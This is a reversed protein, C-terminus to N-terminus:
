REGLRRIAERANDAVGEHAAAQRYWHIATNRDATVGRGEEYMTGLAFMSLGDGREAGRTLWLLAASLDQELGPGGSLHMLGLGTAAQGAQGRGGRGYVIEYYHAARAYDPEVGYGWYYANALGLFGLDGARLYAQFAKRHDVPVGERGFTYIAGLDQAAMDQGMSAARELLPVARAYDGSDEIIEHAQRYLDWASESGRTACGAILSTACLALTLGRHMKM